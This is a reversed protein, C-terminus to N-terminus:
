SKLMDWISFLGQLTTIAHPTEDCSKIKKDRSCVNTKSVSQLMDLIHKHFRVIPVKKASVFKVSIVFLHFCVDITNNRM